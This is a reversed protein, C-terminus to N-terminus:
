KMFISKIRCFNKVGIIRIIPRYIYRRNWKGFNQLDSKNSLFAILEEYNDKFYKVGEFLKWYNGSIEYRMMAYNYEQSFSSTKVFDYLSKCTKMYDVYYKKNKASHSQSNERYRVVYLCERIYGVSKAFAFVRPAWEADDWMNGPMFFINNKIILDRNIIKICPSNTYTDNASMICFAKQGSCKDPFISKNVVPCLANSRDDLQYFDYLVVDCENHERLFAIVKNIAGVSFFDDSDVNLIYKGVARKIGNNRAVSSGSNQQKLLVVGLDTAYCVLKAYTDDTSGDDVVIVELLEKESQCLGSFISTICQDIYAGTNYAPIIISLLKKSMTM